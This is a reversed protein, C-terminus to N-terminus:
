IICKLEPDERFITADNEKEIKKISNKIQIYVEPYVKNKVSITPTKTFVIHEKMADRESTIKQIKGNLEKLTKLLEVFKLKRAGILGKVFNSIDRLFNEGFQMKMDDIHDKYVKSIDKLQKNMEEIKEEIEMDKGAMLVTKTFSTSGATGVELGNKGIVKGGIVNAGVFVIEKSFIDSQVVSEKVMIKGDSRVDANQIFKSSVNGGAKIKCTGKDKGLIGHNVIVDAGAEVVADEISENVYISGTAKVIFGPRITGGIEISGNINLNGTNLDVDKKIKVKNEVSIRGSKDINLAGEYEAIYINPNDASPIMGTGIKYKKEGLMKGPIPEGYVTYGEQAEIYPKFECIVEGKECKTVFEKEKYDMSGDDRLTGVIEQKTKLLIVHEIQGNIPKVGQAVIIRTGELNPNDTIKELQPKIKEVPLPYLVGAFDMTQKVDQLSPLIYNKAQYIYMFGILRNKTTYLLPVVEIKRSDSVRAFGYCLAKYEQTHQDFKVNKGEGLMIYPQIDYSGKYKDVDRISIVSAIVDGARVINEGSTLVMPKNEELEIPGSFPERVINDIFFVLRREEIQEAM